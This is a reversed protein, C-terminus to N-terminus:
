HHWSEDCNALGFTLTVRLEEKEEEMRKYKPGWTKKMERKRRREMEQKPELRTM